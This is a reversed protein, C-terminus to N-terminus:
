YTMPYKKIWKSLFRAIDLFVNKVHISVARNDEEFNGNKEYVEISKRKKVVYYVGKLFNQQPKTFINAHKWFRLFQEKQYCSGNPRSNNM